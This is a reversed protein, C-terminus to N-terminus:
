QDIKRTVCYVTDLNRFHKITSSDSPNLSTVLPYADALSVELSISTWAGVVVLVGLVTTYSMFIASNQEPQTSEYQASM